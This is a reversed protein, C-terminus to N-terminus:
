RRSYYNCNAANCVGSRVEFCDRNTENVRGVMNPGARWVNRMAPNRCEIVSCKCTSGWPRGTYTGYECLTTDKEILDNDANCGYDNTDDCKRWFLDGNSCSKYDCSVGCLYIPVPGSTTAEDSGAWLLDEFFTGGNFQVWIPDRILDIRNFRIAEANPQTTAYSLPVNRANNNNPQLWDFDGEHSVTQSFYRGGVHLSGALYRLGAETFWNRIDGSIAAEPNYESYDQAWPNFTGVQILRPHAAKMAYYASYGKRRSPYDNLLGEYERSEDFFTEIRNGESYVIEHDTMSVNFTHPLTTKTFCFSIDCEPFLITISRAHDIIATRAIFRKGGIEDGTGLSGTDIRSEDPHTIAQLQDEDYEDCIPKLYIRGKITGDHSETFPVYLEPDFYPVRTSTLGNSIIRERWGSDYRIAGDQYLQIRCEWYRPLNAFQRSITAETIRNLESRIMRNTIQVTRGSFAWDTEFVLTQAFLEEDEPLDTAEIYEYKRDRNRRVWRNRNSSWTNWNEECPLPCKGKWVGNAM